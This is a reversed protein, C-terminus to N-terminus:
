RSAAQRPGTTDPARLYLPRPPGLTGGGRSLIAGLRAVEEACPFDFEGAITIDRGHLAAALRPAADGALLLPIDPLAAAAMEASALHPDGVSDTFLQLFFDDRRTDLAVLLGRGERRELPFRAAIAALRSVGVSPVGTALALGRATAIAIRLGTFSGPGTTTAILDLALPDTEADCLVEAIMPLLIEAQRRDGTADRASVLRGDRLLAASAGQGASDLGLVLMM